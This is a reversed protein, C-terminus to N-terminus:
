VPFDVLQRPRTPQERNQQQDASNARSEVGEGEQRGDHDLAAQGLPQPSPPMFAHEFADFIVEDDAAVAADAADDRLLQAALTDRTDHDLAVRRAQLFGDLLSRQCDFGIRATFLYQLADPDLAGAAEDCHNA